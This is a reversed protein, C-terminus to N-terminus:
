AWAKSVFLWIIRLLLLTFLLSGFVAVVEILHNLRFDGVVTKLDPHEPNRFTGNAYFDDMLADKEYWIKFLWTEFAKLDEPKVDDIDDTEEGLPIDELHFSRIHYNIQKPGYGLLYFGKLTFVNEGFQDPTLGSYGTTIDYVVKVSGRLKRLTLFLGRVRPILTHKLKPIDLKECFKESRLKTHASNVTGEPYIIVMYPWADAPNEGKPWHNIAANNVNTSSVRKVGCAPGLGRANADIVLLQNTLKVKDNEWKRLLFMFNFNTMGYGLVPIKSLDKLIIHFTGALNATYNLFWVFLWDTYIQHNGIFVSNPILLTKLRGQPDVLFSDSAPLDHADYTISIKCPSIWSTVFTILTVFHVKTGNVVGQILGPHKGLIKLACLQTYCITLCGTIFTFGLIITRVISVPYSHRLSSMILSRYDIPCRFYISAAIPRIPPHCCIFIDHFPACNNSKGRGM